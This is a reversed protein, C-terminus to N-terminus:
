GCIWDRLLIGYGSDGTVGPLSQAVAAWGPGRPARAPLLPRANGRRDAEDPVDGRDLRRDHGGRHHLPDRPFPDGHRIAALGCVALPTVM